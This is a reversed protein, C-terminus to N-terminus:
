LYRKITALSVGLLKVIETRPSGQDVARLVKARLDLSYAKMDRRGKRQESRGGKKIRGDLEVRGCAATALHSKVRTPLIEQFLFHCSATHHKCSRPWHHSM